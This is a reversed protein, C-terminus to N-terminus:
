RVGDRGLQAHVKKTRWSASSEDLEATRFGTLHRVRGDAVMAGAVVDAGQLRVDEGEGVAAFTQASSAMLHAIFDRAPM